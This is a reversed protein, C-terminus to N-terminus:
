ERSATALERMGRSVDALQRVLDVLLAVEVPKRLYADFPNAVSQWPEIHGTMAILGIHRTRPEDRLARALTWGPPGPALHLDTVVVDPIRELAAQRGAEAGDVSRVLYDHAVLITVILKRCDEDDEVVLVDIPKQMTGSISRPETEM